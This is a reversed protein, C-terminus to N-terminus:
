NGSSGFGNQGRETRDGLQEFLDVVEVFIPELGPACVQLLRDFRNVQARNQIQDKIVGECKELAHCCNGKESVFASSTPSKMSCLRLVDFVGILYGRYGSDIIGRSNALRYCTKTISSRPDLYYGTSFIKGTDTYMDAACIIEHNIRTVNNENANNEDFHRPVFLDFGADLYKNGPNLLKNNHNTVAELYRERLETANLVDEQPPVFIKLHMVKDYKSLLYQKKEDTFM